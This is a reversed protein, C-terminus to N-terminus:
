EASRSRLWTLPDVPQPMGGGVPARVQFELHAGEPTETGGVTGVIQGAQVAQGERVRVENLYQYLTYYGQGHSLIVSPGYGEFPGAMVVDGGEVAAVPTGAAAAIGIGNRRLIVGNSRQERGFRYVVDGEVPWDVNGMDGTSLTGTGTRDGAIARRREEELRRRELEEIVSALRAEDRSLQELRGETTREQQRYESLAAQHESEIYQLQAFEELKEDRLRQLMGLNRRMEDDRAALDHELRTIEQVLLRDYLAVLHLYKYRNLLEGFTSATFLVRITHLPGRKYISRLRLLLVARRERLQDRTQLLERTVEEVRRNLTTTQFELEKLAEASTAVQREINSLEQATSHVRTSLQDMQQQLAEREQRIQELRRQSERLEQQVDAQATGPAPLVLVTVAACAIATRLSRRASM